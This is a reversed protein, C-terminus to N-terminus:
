VPSGHPQHEPLGACVRHNYAALPYQPETCWVPPDPKRGPEQIFHQPLPHRLPQYLINDAQKQSIQHQFEQFFKQVTQFRLFMIIKELLLDHNKGSLDHLQIIIQQFVFFEMHQVPTHPSLSCIIPLIQFGQPPVQRQQHAAHRSYPHGQEHHPIKQCPHLILCKQQEQKHQKHRCSYPDACSTRRGCAPDPLFAVPGYTFVTGPPVSVHIIKGLVPLSFLDANVSKSFQQNVSQHLRMMKHILLHILPVQFRQKM